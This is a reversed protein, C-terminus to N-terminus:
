WDTLIDPKIGNPFYIKGLYTACDPNSTSKISLNFGKNKLYEALSAITLVFLPYVFKIKSLNIDVINATPNAKLLNLFRVVENLQAGFDNGKPQNLEVTYILDAM